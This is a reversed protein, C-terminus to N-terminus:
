VDGIKGQMGYSLGHCLQKLKQRVIPELVKVNTGYMFNYVTVWFDKGKKTKDRMEEFETVTPFNLLKNV